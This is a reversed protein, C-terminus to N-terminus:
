PGNNILPMIYMYFCLFRSFCSRANTHSFSKLEIKFDGVNFAAHTGYLSPLKSAPPALMDIFKNHSIKKIKYVLKQNTTHM